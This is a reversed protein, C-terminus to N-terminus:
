KPLPLMIMANEAFLAEGPKGDIRYQVKLQKVTGPAPDGGFSANYNGGPLTILPLDRVQQQIIATVDKQATGAGYEAKVIEVKMPGLGITALLAPLDASGAGLKQAIAMATRTAGEKLAPIQAAKAAVKLTDVSPYRELIVLVLKQDEVRTAADLAKQCMEARPGEPMVFQRAIRIYGRLARGRYKDGPATKALDLLAPAADITRWEGLQKSATEQLEADSGKVAAVMAELAKTGGIAALTELLSPRTEPSAKAMTAMVQAACEEREPTRICATRLAKQAVKADDANKPALVVSILLPLQELSVTEGLATLAASRVAPDGQDLAKVLAPTADIRKLGVLDILVAFTKGQAKPLRAVIEADVKDGPLGALATVAAEALEADPNTAIELLAPLSAADGLQRVVGIAAIRVDKTGSKMAEAVAPPLVPSKTDALAALLLVAREPSTGHLEAALAEAVERGPMERATTLGILFLGKDNSRLQEVLLPIGDTKRALIAGRTAELIKQKPLEARRLEDYIEIAKSAKGDALLREAALICGEAVASRVGASAGALSQRLSQIAAPSGIHGLAVAAASAIDADSDKLRGTLADVAAADRRVGISNITGVLLEGKLGDIAGRLAADAEPGPIAELPIRAWSALEPDSLLPALAPVAQATGYITLKKCTIAKDAKPSDSKLVAILEQETPTSQGEAAQLRAGALVWLAALLATCRIFSRTQHM